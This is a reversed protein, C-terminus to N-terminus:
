IPPFHESQIAFQTFGSCVKGERLVTQDLDGINTKFSQIMVSHTM